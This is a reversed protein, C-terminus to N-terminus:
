GTMWLRGTANDPDDDELLKGLAYATAQAVKTHIGQGSEMGSHTVQISGDSIINVLAQRFGAGVAYKLSTIAIGRKIHPSTKNFARIAERRKDFDATRKIENWMRPVTWCSAAIEQGNAATLTKGKPWPLGLGPINRERVTEADMGCVHAVHAMITEAIYSPELESPGRCASRTPTATVYPQVDVEFEPIYYTQDMSRTMAM